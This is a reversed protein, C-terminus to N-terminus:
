HFIGSQMQNLVSELRELSSELDKIVTVQNAIKNNLKDIEMNLQQKKQQAL